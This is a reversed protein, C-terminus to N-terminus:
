SQRSMSNRAPGPPDRKIWYSPAVPDLRLLLMDKGFARLGLGIPVIALYYVLTTVVPTVAHHFVINLVARTRRILELACGSARTTRLHSISPEHMSM